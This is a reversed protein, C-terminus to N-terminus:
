SRLRVDTVRRHEDQRVVADARDPLDALLWRTLREYLQVFRDLEPETMGRGTRRRLEAEQEGRWRRVVEFGPAQLFALADFVAFLTQYPGGLLANARRRWVGHPDEDRELANVPRDLDGEPQPRAGVCWGELVVLDCRAEVRRWTSVPARDDLAKDFAPLAVPRGAKFASLVSLGLKVDHTGPPGRTACLPHVERALALRASRELYLDDLSLAAALRGQEAAATEIRRALTSKGSGQAGCLGLVVPAEARPRRDLAYRLLTQALDSM